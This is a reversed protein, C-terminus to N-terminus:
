YRWRWKRLCNLWGLSLAGVSLSFLFSILISNMREHTVCSGAMTIRCDFVIASFLWLISLLALSLNSSTLFSKSWNQWLFSIVTTFSFSFAMCWDKSCSPWISSRQSDLANLCFMSNFKSCFPDADCYCVVVNILLILFASEISCHISKTYVILQLQNITERNNQQQDENIKWSICNIKRMSIEKKKTWEFIM